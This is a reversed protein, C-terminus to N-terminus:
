ASTPLPRDPENRCGSGLRKKCRESPSVALSTRWFQLFGLASSSAMFQTHFCTMLGCACFCAPRISRFRPM